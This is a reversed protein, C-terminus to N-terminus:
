GRHHMPDAAHNDLQITLRTSYHTDDAQVTMEHRGPYTLEMRRRVNAVGIGGGADKLAHNIRNRCFLSLRAGDLRLDMVAPDEPDNLVGHKFMNEAFNVLILPAIPHEKLAGTVRLEFHMPGNVRLQQLSALQSIHYIERELPVREGSSEYLMYQILESLRMIARPTEESQQYALIYINNLTNLLFHPNVQSKLFALEMERRVRDNYFWDVAFRYAFSVLFLIGMFTCNDFFWYFFRYSASGKQYMGFFRNIGLIVLTYLLILGIWKGLLPLLKRTRVWVPLFVLLNVYFSTIIFLYAAIWYAVSNGAGAHIMAPIMAAPPILWVVVHGLLLQRKNM